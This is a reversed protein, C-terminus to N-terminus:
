GTTVGVETFLQRVSLLNDSSVAVTLDMLVTVDFGLRAGDVATARVCFDTAIGCVDFATVDRERLWDALAVGSGSKGEFGSYAAEYEGKLFTETFLDASLPTHLHEGDTGVVCHPPWSDVFDPHDSFHAGPDIHHDKTAVVINYVGSAILEAVNTAVAAGGAVGLSGGECFDNQVDVVILTKAM